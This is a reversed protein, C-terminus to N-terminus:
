DKLPHLDEKISPKSYESKILIDGVYVEVAYGYYQYGSAPVSKTSTRSNRGRGKRSNVKHERNGSVKVEPSAVAVEEKAPVTVTSEDKKIVILNNDKMGTGYIWWKVKVDPVADKDYNALTTTLIRSQTKTAAGKFDAKGEIKVEAKVGPQREAAALPLSFAFILTPLLKTKM